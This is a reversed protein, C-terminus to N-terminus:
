LKPTGFCNGLHELGVKPYYDMAAPASLLILRVEDGGAEERSRELLKKGVGQGQFVTDVCLDAVYIMEGFDSVSRSLGILQGKSTRATVILDSNKLIRALREHNETRRREALTSRKLIDLYDELSLGPELSYTISM